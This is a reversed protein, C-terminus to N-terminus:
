PLACRARLTISARGTDARTAHDCRRASDNEAGRDARGQHARRQAAARRGIRALVTQHGRCALEFDLMDYRFFPPWIIEGAVIGSQTTRLPEGQRGIVVDPVEGPRARKAVAGLITTSTKPRGRAQEVRSEVMPGITESIQWRFLIPHDDTDPGDALLGYTGQIEMPHGPLRGSRVICPWGPRCIDEEAGGGRRYDKLACNRGERSESGADYSTAMAQMAAREWRQENRKLMVVVGGVLVALALTIYGLPGTVSAGLGYGLLGMLTAWVIGGAANFLAFRQWPM